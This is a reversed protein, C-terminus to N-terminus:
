SAREPHRRHGCVQPGDDVGVLPAEDRRGGSAGTSVRDAVEDLRDCMPAPAVGVGAVGVDTPLRVGRTRSGPLVCEAFHALDSMILDALIDPDLDAHRSTLQALKRLGDDIDAGRREVLGDTCWVLLSHPPVLTEAQARPEAPSTIYPNIGVLLFRGGPLYNSHHGTALLPPLHGACAYRLLGTAPQYDAFGVTTLSAGPIDHAAQDLLQLVAAPGDTTIAFAKLM